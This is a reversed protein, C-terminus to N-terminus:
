IVPKQQPYAPQYRSNLKGIMGQGTALQHGQRVLDFYSMLSPQFAQQQLYKTQWANKPNYNFTDVVHNRARANEEFFEYAQNYSAELFQEFDFFAGPGFQPESLSYINPSVQVLNQDLSSESSVQDSVDSCEDKEWIQSLSFHPM